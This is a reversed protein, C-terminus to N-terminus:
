TDHKMSVDAYIQLANPALHLHGIQCRTKKSASFGFDQPGNCTLLPEVGKEPAPRPLFGIQFRTALAEGIAQITNLYGQFGILRRGDEAGCVIGSDGLAPSELM